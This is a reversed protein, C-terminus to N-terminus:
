PLTLKEDLAIRPFSDDNSRYLRPLAEMHATTGASAETEVGHERLLIEIVEVEYKNAM